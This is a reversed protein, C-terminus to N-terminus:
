LAKLINTYKVMYLAFVMYLSRFTNKLAEDRIRMAGLRGGGDRVWLHSLIM